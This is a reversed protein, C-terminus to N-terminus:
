KIVTFSHGILERYKIDFLDVIKQNIIINIEEYLANKEIDHITLHIAPDIVITNGKEVAGSIVNCSLIIGDM